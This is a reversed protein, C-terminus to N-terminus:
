PGDRVWGTWIAEERQWSQGVRSCRARQSTGLPIQASPRGTTRGLSAVLFTLRSVRCRRYRARLASSDYLPCRQAKRPM